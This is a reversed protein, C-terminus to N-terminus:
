REAEDEELQRLVAEAHEPYVVEICSPCLSHSFEAETHQRVYSDVQQWYGADDRIKKCHSCIPVIGKLTKVQALAEQLQVITKTRELEALDRERIRRRIHGAGLGIGVVGILWILFHGVVLTWWHREAIALLPSMPVTVSIGGRVDGVQYGQKDHCRLCSRETVLPKMLRM